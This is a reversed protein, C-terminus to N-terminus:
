NRRIRLTQEPALKVKFKEFGRVEITHKGSELTLPRETYHEVVGQYNGDVYVSADLPFQEFLIFGYGETEDADENRTGSAFISIGAYAGAVAWAGNGYYISTGPWYYGPVGYYPYNYYGGTGYPYPRGYGYHPPPVPRYNPRYAPHQPAGYGPFPRPVARGYAPGNGQHM